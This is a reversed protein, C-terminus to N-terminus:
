RAVPLRRLRDALNKGFAEIQRAQYEPSLTLYPNDWDGHVGLRKFQERQVDVYHLTLERCMRRWELVSVEHRDVGRERAVSQETPLGQTDWGPVYPCDYGRMTKYKVTIDKLIKNLAQGLHINGNAYPPGDHLLYTPAGRRLERVRQYLGVEEWFELLEPEREPLKGRMPFDTKLLNLTDRYDM